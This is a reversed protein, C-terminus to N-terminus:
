RFKFWFQKYSNYRSDYKFAHQFKIQVETEIQVCNQYKTQFANFLDDCDKGFEDSENFYIYM